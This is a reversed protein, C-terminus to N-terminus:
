IFAYAQALLVGGCIFEVENHPFLHLFELENNSNTCPNLWITKIAMVWLLFLVYLPYPDIQGENSM